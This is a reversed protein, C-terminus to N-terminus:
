KDIVSVAPRLDKETIFLNLDLNLKAAKGDLRLKKVPFSDDQRQLMLTVNSSACASDSEATTDLQLHLKGFPILLWYPGSANPTNLMSQAHGMMDTITTKELRSGRCKPNDSVLDFRVFAPKQAMTKEPDLGGMTSFVYTQFRTSIEFFGPETRKYTSLDLAVNGHHLYWMQGNWDTYYMILFKVYDELTLSAVPGSTIVQNLYRAYVSNGGLAFRKYLMEHVVIGRLSNRDLHRLIEGQILFKSNGEGAQDYRIALQEVKCNRPFFLHNSDPVDELKTTVYTYGPQTQAEGNLYKAISNSLDMAEVKFNKFMEPDFDSLKDSLKEFYEANDLSDEFAHPMHRYAQGEYYDLLGASTIEGASNRCVVADGGNGKDNGRAFVNLGLLMSFLFVTKM